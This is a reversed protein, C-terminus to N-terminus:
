SDRDQNIRATPGIPASNLLSRARDLETRLEVNVREMDEVIRRLADADRNYYANLADQANM